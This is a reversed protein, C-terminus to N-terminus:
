RFVEEVERVAKQAAKASPHRNMVFPGEVAFPGTIKWRGEIRRGNASVHGAYAVPYEGGPPPGQYTKTFTVERGIRTGTIDAFLETTPVPSFSNREQTTGWIVGRIDFVMATFAVAEAGDADYDFVGTWDGGISTVESPM